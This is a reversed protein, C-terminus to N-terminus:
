PIQPGDPWQGLFAKAAHQEEPTREPQSGWGAVGQAATFAKPPEGILDAPGFDGSVVEAEIRLVPMGYHSAPSETTLSTKEGSENKIMTIDM